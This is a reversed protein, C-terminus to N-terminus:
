PDIETQLVEALVSALWIQNSKHQVSDTSALTRIGAAILDKEDQQSLLAHVILGDVWTAGASTLLATVAQLTSGTSVLDDILIAPRGKVIATEPLDISVQRDGHRTKRAVIFPMNVNHAVNEIWQRSEADPGVLVTDSAYAKQTIHHALAPAASLVSIDTRQFLPDLTATRHLHPDVTILRDFLTDLYNCIIQQSVAEGPTFAKDQRMYCLYPAILVIRRTGSQRLAHAAFMLEILKDNPNNLSCYLLSCDTAKSVRVQSEGDPFRHVHVPQSVLGMRDALREAGDEDEPMFHLTTKM